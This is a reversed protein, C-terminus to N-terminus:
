AFPWRCARSSFPGCCFSRLVNHLDAIYDPNTKQAREAPDTVITHYRRAPFVCKTCWSVFTGDVASRCIFHAHPNSAACAKVVVAAIAADGLASFRLCLVRPQEKNGAM